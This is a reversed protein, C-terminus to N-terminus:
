PLPGGDTVSPGAIGLVLCSVTYDHSWYYGNRRKPTVEMSQFVVTLVRGFHDTLQIRRRKNYVWNFLADYEGKHLIPGSFQWQKPPTTGEYTLVKGATTTFSSVAREPLPSTMSAPNRVFAYTNTSADTDYPDKLKWRLVSM